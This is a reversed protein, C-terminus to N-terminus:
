VDKPAGEEKLGGTRRLYDDVSEDEEMIRARLAKDSWVPVPGSDGTFPNFRHRYSAEKNYTEKMWAWGRVYYSCADNFCVYQYPTGWSLSPPTYWRLMREGCKPCLRKDPDDLTVDHQQDDM